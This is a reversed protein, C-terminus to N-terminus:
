MIQMPMWEAENWSEITMWIYKEIIEYDIIQRNNMAKHMKRISSIYELYKLGSLFYGDDVLLDNFMM